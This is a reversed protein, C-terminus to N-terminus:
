NRMVNVYITFIELEIESGGPEREAKPIAAVLHSEIVNVGPHLNAEFIRESSHQGPHVQHNPQLPQKDFLTWLSYQRDQLAEPLRTIMGVRTHTPPVNVTVSQQMEKADPLITVM